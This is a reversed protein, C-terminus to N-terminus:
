SSKSSPMTMNSASTPDVCRNFAVAASVAGGLAITVARVLEDIRVTGDVVSYESHLRLHVFSPTTM